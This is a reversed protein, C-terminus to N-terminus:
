GLAQDFIRLIRERYEQSDVVVAIGHEARPVEFLAKPHRAAEYFLRMFYQEKGRGTSIFLVPRPYILHLTEVVGRRQNVGSIFDFLKYVFWNIPYNIWRQLTTPRGGHDALTAPGMSELVVARIARTRAAAHLAVQAGFSIGLIGVQDVDVDPRSELYDLAGLVDNVEWVGTVTDGESDGHARLDPLMVSYGARNLLRAQNLMSIGSGGLGHILLIVKRKEGPILWGRLRLGDRSLFELREYQAGVQSELLRRQFLSRRPHVSLYINWIFYNLYISVLFVFMSVWHFSFTYVMGFVFVTLVWVIVTNRYYLSTHRNTQAHAKEMLTEM